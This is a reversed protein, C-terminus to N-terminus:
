ERILDSFRVVRSQPAEHAEEPLMFRWFVTGERHGATDLWNPVGPDNHARVITHRLLIPQTRARRGLVPTMDIGQPAGRLPPRGLLERMSEYQM